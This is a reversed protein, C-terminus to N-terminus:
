VVSKRDGEFVGVLADKEIWVECYTPQDAWWDEHYGAAASEIISEPDSWSPLARLFRTRDEIAMWDILGAMRADAVVNGLSKYSQLTNPIWARAVFQYYLQRLTLRFGAAEYEAIIRNAQEIRALSAQSFQKHEYAIKM